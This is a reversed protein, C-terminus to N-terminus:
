NKKSQSKNKSMHVSNRPAHDDFKIASKTPSCMTYSALKTQSKSNIKKNVSHMASIKRYNNYLIFTIACFFYFYFYNRIYFILNMYFIFLFNCNQILM